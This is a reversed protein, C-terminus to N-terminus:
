ALALAQLNYEVKREMSEQLQAIGAIVMLCDFEGERDNCQRFLALSEDAALRSADFQELSWLIDAQALLVKARALPVKHSEPRGLLESCWHLGEQLDLDSYLRGIINLGAEIDTRSAWSLALRLNDQEGNLRILWALQQPGRLALEALESFRLYYRLHQSRVMEAEHPDMKEAAFECIMDHLHFRREKGSAQEMRVLSKEALQNMLDAVQATEIGDGSCVAEASELTWGGAFVSFRRMVAQESESLLQWSWEISGRITQQRPLATRNGNTLLNFNEDLKAAIQEISLFGVRAAALEIALPIGDLRRCIQVVFPINEVTLAFDSQALQAREEFLQISEFECYEELGAQGKPVKLSPVKYVAEGMVKLVERSTVLIKLGPCNKLLMEALQACAGSLHECNDLIVLIKRPRLYTVLLDQYSIRSKTTLGFIAAVTQPVLDPNTQAALEVMWVGNPFQELVQEGTKGALRTKGVGGSGTLTVLRHRDILHEIEAMESARGVFTTLFVPLNTPPGATEPEATQNPYGSLGRAFPIWGDQESSPIGIQELLIRALERSPKLTGSEIRRLTIEACGARDALAQRSLDLRRRESRLWKGFSIEENTM